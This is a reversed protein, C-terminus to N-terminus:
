VGSQLIHVLQNAAAVGYLKEGANLDAGLASGAVVEYGTSTSVDAGGVYMSATGKNTISVSSGDDGGQALLVITTGVTIQQSVIAV